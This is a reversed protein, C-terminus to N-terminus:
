GYEHLAEAEHVGSLASIPHPHSAPPPSSAPSASAVPLWRASPLDDRLWAEDDSDQDSGAAGAGDCLRVLRTTRTLHLAQFHATPVPVGSVAAGVALLYAAVLRCVCDRVRAGDSVLMAAPDTVWPVCLRSVAEPDHVDCRLAQRLLSRSPSCAPLVGLIDDWLDAPRPCAAPADSCEFLVHWVCRWRREIATCAGVSGDVDHACSAYPCVGDRFLRDWRVTASCPLHASRVALIPYVVADPARLFRPSALPLALADQVPNYHPEVRPRRLARGAATTSPASPVARVTDQRLAAVNSLVHEALQANPTRRLQAPNPVPRRSARAWWEHAVDMNAYAHDRFLLRTPFAWRLMTAPARSVVAVAARLREAYRFRAVDCAADMPVCRLATMMVPSSVCQRRTWAAETAYARVGCAVRCARELVEDLPALQSASGGPPPGWVEMGYEMVPRIVGHIIRMKVDVKIRSSSLVSAWKFFAALGKKKADAIHRAWDWHHTLWVGLYRIETVQPLETTGWWFHSGAATALAAESGVLMVASKSVNLVCGWKDGFQKATSIIRQLGAPTTAGGITDDAYAQSVLKLVGVPLGDAACRNQLLELMGDMFVAYLFPSLARLWHGSRRSHM